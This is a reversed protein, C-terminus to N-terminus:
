AGPPKAARRVTESGDSLALDILRKADPHNLRRLAEIAAVRTPDSMGKVLGFARSRSMFLRELLPLADKMPCERFYNCAARLVEEDQTQEATRLVGGAADRMKLDKAATIAAKQLTLDGLDLLEGLLFPTALNKARILLAAAAERVSLDPHQASAKLISAIESPGALEYISLVNRAAVPAADPKVQAALQRAGDGLDRLTGAATRRATVDGTKVILAILPPILSPGFLSAVRGIGERLAPDGRSIWEVAEDTAPRGLNSLASGIANKVPAVRRLLDPRAAIRFLFAVVPKAQKFVSSAVLWALVAQAMSVLAPEDQEVGVAEVLPGELRRLLCERAAPSCRELVVVIREAAQRRLSESPEKLGAGLRDVLPELAHKARNDALEGLLRLLEQQIGPSLFKDLPMARLVGACEEAKGGTPPPADAPPSAPAPAAEQPFALSGDPRKDAPRDARWTLLEVHTLPHAAIAKAAAPADPSQLVALLARLERDEVGQTLTFGKLGTRGLEAGLWPAVGRTMRAEVPSENVVLEGEAVSIAVSPSLKLLRVSETALKRYSDEVLKHGPPYLKRSELAVKISQLTTWLIEIVEAGLPKTPM